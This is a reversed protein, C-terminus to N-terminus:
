SGNSGASEGAELPLYDGLGLSIATLSPETVRFLRSNPQMAVPPRTAFPHTPRDKPTVHHEAFKITERHCPCQRERLSSKLRSVRIGPNATDNRVALADDRFAPVLAGALRMRFDGGKAGGFLRYCACSCVHCQLGTAM